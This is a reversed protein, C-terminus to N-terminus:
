EEEDYEQPIKGEGCCHPCRCADGKYYRQGKQIADEETDPILFYTAPKVDVVGDEDGVIWATCDIFGYGGCTPCVIMKVPTGCIPCAEENMGLCVNCAM